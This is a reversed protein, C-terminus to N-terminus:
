LKDTRGVPSVESVRPNNKWNRIGPPKKFKLKSTEVIKKQTKNSTTRYVPTFNNSKSPVNFTQIIITDYRRVTDIVDCGSRRWSM